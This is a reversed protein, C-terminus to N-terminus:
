QISGSRMEEKRLLCTAPSRCPILSPRLLCQPPIVQNESELWALGVIAMLSDDVQDTQRQVIHASNLVLQIRLFFLHGLTDAIALTHGTPSWSIHGIEAGRQVFLELHTDKVM